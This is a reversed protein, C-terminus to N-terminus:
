LAVTHFLLVVVGINDCFCVSKHHLVLQHVLKIHSHHIVASGHGKGVNPTFIISFLPPTGCCFHCLIIHMFFSPVRIWHAYHHPLPPPLHQPGWSGWSDNHLFGPWPIPTWLGWGDSHNCPCHHRTWSRGLRLYTCWCYSYRAQCDKLGQYKRCHPAVGYIHIMSLYSLIWHLEPVCM